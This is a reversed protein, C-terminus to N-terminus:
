ANGSVRAVHLLDEYSLGEGVLGSAVQAGVRPLEEIQRVVAWVDGDRREQAGLTILSAAYLLPVFREIAEAVCYGLDLGNHRLNAALMVAGLEEQFTDVCGSLTESSTMYKHVGSGVDCLLLAGVSKNYGLFEIYELMGGTADRRTKANFLLDRSHTAFEVAQRTSTIEAVASLFAEVFSEDSENAAEWLLLRTRDTPRPSNRLLSAVSSVAPTIPHQTQPMDM